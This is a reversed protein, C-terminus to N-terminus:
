ARATVTHVNVKERERERERERELYVGIHTYEGAAVQRRSIQLRCRSSSFGLFQDIVAKVAAFVPPLSLVQRLDKFRDVDCAVLEWEMGAPALREHFSQDHLTEIVM